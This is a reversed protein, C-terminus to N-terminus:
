KKYFRHMILMFQKVGEQDQVQVQVQMQSPVFSVFKSLSRLTVYEKSQAKVCYM